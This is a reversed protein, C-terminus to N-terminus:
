PRHLVTFGEGDGVLILGNGGLTRALDAATILLPGSCREHNMTCVELTTRARKHPTV